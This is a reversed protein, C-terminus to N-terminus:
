AASGRNDEIREAPLDALEVAIRHDKSSCPSRLVVAESGNNAITVRAVDTNTEEDHAVEINSIALDANVPLPPPVVVDLSADNDSRNYEVLSKDPDIRASLVVKGPETPKWSFTVQQTENATLRIDNTAVRETGAFLTVPVHAEDRTARNRVTFSVRVEENPKPDEPEIRLEVAVLDSM